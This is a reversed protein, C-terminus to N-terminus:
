PADEPEPEPLVASSRRRMRVVLLVVGVILAIELMSCATDILGFSEPHGVYGRVPAAPSSGHQGTAAASLIDDMNQERRTILPLGTTRSLFWIVVVAANAVAGGILVSWPVRRIWFVAAAWWLQVTAVVVFFVLQPILGPSAHQTAAWIHIAGAGASAAVLGSRISHGIPSAEEEEPIGTGVEEPGVEEPAGLTVEEEVGMAVEGMGVEGMEYRSM